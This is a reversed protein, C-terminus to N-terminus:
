RMTPRGNDSLVGGPALQRVLVSTVVGEISRAIENGLRQNDGRGAGGSNGGGNVTVNFNNSIAPASSGSTRVGLNGSAMRVLPVAAEPGAEGVLATGGSAMPVFQANAFIGGGGQAMPIYSGRDFALGLAGIKAPGAGVLQPSAGGGVGFLGALGSLGQSIWRGAGDMALRSGARITFSAMEALLAKLVDTAKGGQLIVRELAQGAANGVQYWSDRVLGMIRAQERLESLAGAQQADDELGEYKGYTRQLRRRERNIGLDRELATSSLTFRGQIRLDEMEDARAIAEDGRQLRLREDYQRQAVDVRQGAQSELAARRPDNRPLAEAISRDRAAQQEAQQTVQSLGRLYPSRGAQDRMEGLAINARQTAQAFEALSRAALETAQALTFGAADGGGADRYAQASRALEGEVGYAARYAGAPVGMGPYFINGGINTGTRGATWGPYQGMSAAHFHTAGGTIDSLEGSLLRRAIDMAAQGGPSGLDVRAAAGDGWVSFQRPALVVDSLGQGTRMARNLIVNGVAQRGDASGAEAAITRAFNELDRQTYTIGVSARQGAEIQGAQQQSRVIPTRDISSQERAVQADFEALARDRQVTQDAGYSRSIQDRRLNNQRQRDLVPNGTGGAGATALRDAAALRDAEASAEVNASVRADVTARFSADSSYRERAIRLADPSRREAEPLQALAAQEIRQRANRSGATADGAAIFTNERIQATERLSAQIGIAQNIEREVQLQARLKEEMASITRLNEQYKENNTGVQRGLAENAERMGRTLDYIRESDSIDIESAGTRMQGLRYTRAEGQRRAEMYQRQVTGAETAFAEGLISAASAGGPQDSARQAARQRLAAAADSSGGVGLGREIIHFQERLDTTRRETARTAAARQEEIQREIEAVELKIRASRSYADTIQNEAQVVAQAIRRSREAEQEAGGAGATQGIGYADGDFGQTSLRDVRAAAGVQRFREMFGRNFFARETGALAGRQLPSLRGAIQEPLMGEPDTIDVGFQRVAEIYRQQHALQAQSMTALFNERAASVEAGGIRPNVELGDNASSLQYGGYVSQARRWLAMGRADLSFPAFSANAEERYRGTIDAQQLAFEDSGLWELGREAMRYGSLVNGAALGGVGGYQYGYRVPDGYYGPSRQWASRSMVGGDRRAELERRRGGRTQFLDSLGFTVLSRAYDGATGGYETELDALEADRLDNQRTRTVISRRLDSIRAAEADQRLERERQATSRFDPDRIAAISAISTEGLVARIDGGMAPDMRYQRMRETFERLVAAADGSGRGELSVGYNALVQRARQGEETVGQLAMQIRQLSSTMEQSSLGINRSTRVFAEMAGASTNFAVAAAEVQGVVQRLERTPGNLASISTTLRNMRDILGDIGQGAQRMQQDLLALEARYTSLPDKGDLFARTLRLAQESADSSSGKLADLDSKARRADSSDIAFALSAIDTM